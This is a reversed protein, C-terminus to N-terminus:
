GADLVRGLGAAALAAAAAELAAADTDRDFGFRFHLEGAQTRSSHLSAINIAHAAFVQLLARLSGPRDEALYVSLVRADALDALLYAIREFAYNGADLAPAGFGARNADLCDARFSARAQADGRAVLRAIEAQRDALLQLVAPVHPNTFQIDEYIAPNLSLIRSAAAVDMAFAASRLSLLDAVGGVEPALANLVSAQALHSAHVMAQVLAMARDHHEPEVAVCEAELAVLLAELWPTWRDLRARSVALVRGKLTPSKPPATLPHLGVVEAKSALLAAVPAAKISTVDLWLRGAERGASRAAWEGIVAATCHIPVSFVLVDVRELLADPDVSAPDAPDHGLVQLGMRQSFFTRLWRGYAGASGVIGICAPSRDM